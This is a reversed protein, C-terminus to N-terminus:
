FVTRFGGSYDHYSDYNDAGDKGYAVIITHTTGERLIRDYPDGSDLPITFAVETRGDRESGTLDSIDSTGGLDSDPAHRIRGTGFHDEAQVGDDDVYALIMNADKMVSAPDFGISVWGTTPASLRVRVAAEEIRWDVTVGEMEVRKFGDGTETPQLEEMQGGAFGAGAALVLILVTPFLRRM